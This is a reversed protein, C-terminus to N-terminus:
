DVNKLDQQLCEKYRNGVENLYEKYTKDAM